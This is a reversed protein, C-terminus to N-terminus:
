PALNQTVSYETDIRLLTVPVGCGIMSDLDKALGWIPYLVPFRSNGRDVVRMARMCCSGKIWDPAALSELARETM